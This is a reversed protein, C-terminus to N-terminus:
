PTGATLNVESDQINATGGIVGASLKNARVNTLLTIDPVHTSFLPCDHGIDLVAEIYTM